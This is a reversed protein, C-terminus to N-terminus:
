EILVFVYVELSPYSSLFCVESVKVGVNRVHLVEAPQTMKVNTVPAACTLVFDLHEFKYSGRCQLFNM